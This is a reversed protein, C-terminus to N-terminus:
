ASRRFRSSQRRVQAAIATPSSDPAGSATEEAEEQQPQEIVAPKNLVEPNGFEEDLTRMLYEAEPRADRNNEIIQNLIFHVARHMSEPRAEAEKHRREDRQSELKKRNKESDNRISM